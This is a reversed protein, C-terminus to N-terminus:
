LRHLANERLPEDFYCGHHPAVYVSEQRAHLLDLNQNKPKCVVSDRMMSYM